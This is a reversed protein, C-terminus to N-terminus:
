KKSKAGPYGSGKSIGAGAGANKMAELREQDTKSDATGKGLNAAKENDEACGTSFLVLGLYCALATGRIIRSM